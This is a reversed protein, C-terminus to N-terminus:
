KYVPFRHLINGIKKDESEALAISTMTV